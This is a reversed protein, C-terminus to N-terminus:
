FAKYVCMYACVRVCVCALVRKVCVSDFSRGLQVISDHELTASKKNRLECRDCHRKNKLPEDSPMETNEQM